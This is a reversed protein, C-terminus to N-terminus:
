ILDGSGGDWAVTVAEPRAEGGGTQERTAILTTKKLYLSSSTGGRSLRGPGGLDEFHLEFTKIERHDPEAWWELRVEWWEQGCPVRPEGPHGEKSHEPGKCTGIETLFM